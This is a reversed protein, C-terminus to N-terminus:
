QARSRVKNGAASGADSYTFWDQAPNDELTEYAKKYYLEALRLQGDLDSLLGQERWAQATQINEGAEGGAQRETCGVTLALVVILMFVIINGPNRQPM